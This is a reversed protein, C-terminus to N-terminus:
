RFNMFWKCSNEMANSFSFAPSQVSNLACCCTVIKVLPVCVQIHTWTTRRKLYKNLHIIWCKLDSVSFIPMIEWWMKHWIEQMEVATSSCNDTVYSDESISTHRCLNRGGTCVIFHFCLKERAYQIIQAIEEQLTVQFLNWSSTLCIKESLPLCCTWTHHVPVYYLLSGGGMTSCLQCLQRSWHIEETVSIPFYRVMRPSCFSFLM